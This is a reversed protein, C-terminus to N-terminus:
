YAELKGVLWARDEKRVGQLMASLFVQQIRYSDQEDSSINSVRVLLGDPVIGTLGYSLRAMNQEWWGRTVSDGMRIWYTIPENRAGQKAMLRMVPIQGIATDVVAKTMEGIQFGQSVYCVEPKHVQLDRTQDGGYAISLMIRKGGSDIYTRSLTQNYIKNLMAEADPSVLLPMVTPDLKWGGFEKPIMTELDIAPGNDALRETPTMAISLGAALLMAIGVAIYRYGAFEM